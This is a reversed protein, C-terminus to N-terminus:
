EKAGDATYGHPSYETSRYLFLLSDTTREKIADWRLESDSSNWSV